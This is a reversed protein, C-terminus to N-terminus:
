QSVLGALRSHFVEDLKESYRVNKIEIIEIAMEADNSNPSDIFEYQKM